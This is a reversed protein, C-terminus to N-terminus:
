QVVLRYAGSSDYPAVQIYYSEGAAAKFSVELDSGLTGDYESLIESKKRDYVKIWPRLTTSRNELSVSISEANGASLRYWDTDQGDLINADISKGSSIAFASFADENPEFEDYAQRPAITLRYKGRTEYPLVQVYYTTQPAAAFEQTMDAGTTGDYKSNIESKSADYVKIWPRLTTSQNQLTIAITDRAKGSFQFSFFDNDDSGLVEGSVAAGPAIATAELIINNPEVEVSAPAPTSGRDTSDDVPPQAQSLPTLTQSALADAKSTVQAISADIASSKVQLLAADGTAAVAQAEVVQEAV